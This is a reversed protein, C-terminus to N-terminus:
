ILDLINFKKFLETETYIKYESFCFFDDESIYNLKSIDINYEEKALIITTFDDMFHFDFINFDRNIEKENKIQNIKTELKEIYSIQKIVDDYKHFSLKKIEEIKSNFDEVSSSNTYHLFVELDEKAKNLLNTIKKEIM